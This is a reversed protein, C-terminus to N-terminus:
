RKKRARLDNITRLLATTLDLEAKLRNYEQPSLKRGDLEKEAHEKARRAAAEDLERGRLVTDALVTVVWPQVEAFGGSIFFTEENDQAVIVRVAGAKLHALLPAHRPLVGIEGRAAPLVVMEARGSFMLAEASVIDIHLTFPM